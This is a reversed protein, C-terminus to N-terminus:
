SGYEQMAAFFKAVDIGASEAMKTFMSGRFEYEDKVLAVAQQVFESKLRLEDALHGIAAEEQRRYGM